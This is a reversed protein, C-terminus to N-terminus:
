QSIDYVSILDLYSLVYQNTTLIRGKGGALGKTQSVDELGSALWECVRRVRFAGSSSLYWPLTHLSLFPYLSYAHPFLM